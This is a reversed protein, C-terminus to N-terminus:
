FIMNLSTTPWVVFRIFFRIRLIFTVSCRAIESRWARSPFHVSYLLRLITAQQLLRAAVPVWTRIHTCPDGIAAPNPCKSEAPLPWIALRHSWQPWICQWLVTPPIGYNNVSDAYYASCPRHLPRADTRGDTQRDWREVATAAHPPNAASRGSPLVHRDVAVPALAWCCRRWLVDSGIRCFERKTDRRTTHVMCHMVFIFLL